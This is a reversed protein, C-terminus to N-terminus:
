LEIEKLKSITQSASKHLIGNGGAAVWGNIKKPTDDILIDGPNLIFKWKDPHYTIKSQGKWNSPNTIPTDTYGVNNRLWVTKGRIQYGVECASLIIPNHPQIYSWLEQGDPMWDLNEWLEEGWSEVIDWFADKGYTAEYVEPAIGTKEEFAKLFDCIVGDM